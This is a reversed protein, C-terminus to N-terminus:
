LTTSLTSSNVPPLYRYITERLQPLQVPKILMENMGARMCSKRDEDSSHATLAVIPVQPNKERIAQTAELGDMEPMSLDMLILRITGQNESFKEIAEVGTRAEFTSIGLKQVIKVLFMRNIVEDEAILVAGSEIM